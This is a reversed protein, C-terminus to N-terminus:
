PQLMAFVPVDAVKCHEKKPFHYLKTSLASLVKEFTNKAGRLACFRSAPQM